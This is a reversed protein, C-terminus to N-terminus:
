GGWAAEAWGGIRAGAGVIASVIAVSVEIVTM